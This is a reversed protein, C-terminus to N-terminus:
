TEYVLITVSYFCAVFKSLNDGESLLKETAMTGIETNVSARHSWIFDRLDVPGVPSCYYDLASILYDSSTDIIVPRLLVRLMLLSTVIAMSIYRARQPHKAVARWAWKTVDSLFEISM